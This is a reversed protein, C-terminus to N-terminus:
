EAFVGFLSNYINVQGEDNTVVLKDFEPIYLVAQPVNQGPISQIVKGLARDVVEVTDNGLAALFVRNRSVDVALHDLRGPKVGPLSIRRALTLPAGVDAAQPAVTAQAVVAQPQTLPPLASAVGLLALALIVLLVIRKM